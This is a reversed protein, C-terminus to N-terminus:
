GIGHAGRLAEIRDRLDAIAPTLDPDANRWLELLRQDSAIAEAYDGRTEYLQGLEYHARVWPEQGEWGFTIEDVIAEYADIARDVDGVARYARALSEAYYAGSGRASAQELLEIAGASDGRVLAIEGRLLDYAARDDDSDGMVAALAEAVAQASDVAHLRAYLKGLVLLFYPEVYLSDGTRMEQAAALERRVAVPDGMTRYAAALYLRNRFASLGQNMAQNIRFAERLLGTAEDYRGQYMYLLALSRRGSARQWPEGDLMLRFNQEAEELAGTAVLAGGYEHNIYGRMLAGSDLAAARRDLPISEPPRNTAHYCTAM